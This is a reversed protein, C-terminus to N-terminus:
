IIIGNSKLMDYLLGNVYELQAQQPKLITDIQEQNMGNKLGIEMNFDNVTKCMLDVVEQKYM